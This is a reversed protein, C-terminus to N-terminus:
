NQKHKSPLVIMEREHLHVLTKQMEQLASSATTNMYEQNCSDIDCLVGFIAAIGTKTENLRFSGRALTHNLLLLEQMVVYTVWERDSAIDAYALFAVRGELAMVEMQVIFGRHEPAVVYWHAPGIEKCALGLSFTAARACGVAKPIAVAGSRQPKAPVFLRRIMQLAVTFRSNM